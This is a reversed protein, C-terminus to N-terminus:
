MRMRYKQFFITKANQCTEILRDLEALSLEFEKTGITLKGAPTGQGTRQIGLKSTSKVEFDISGHYNGLHEVRDQNVAYRHNTSM